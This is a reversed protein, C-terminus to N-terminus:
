LANGRCEHSQGALMKRAVWVQGLALGGDGAPAAQPTLLKLDFAALRETLLRLLLANQLCGGSATLTTIGESKATAALWNALAKALGTHFRAAGQAANSEAVLSALLPSLDLVGNQLTRIASLPPATIEGHQRIYGAALSELRMAAEAEYRNRACIGLLAAATDFVRGLSTTPPCHLNKDLMAILPAAQRDPFRSHLWNEIVAPVAGSGHLFAIGMRWPERAAADGGPLKLPALHGLRECEAAELRLLEGGWLGGDTGLGVGDLALGLVPTDIGYEACVAALHAHHHAIGLAPVGLRAAMKLALRTSPLDPHLDHAIVAPTIKLTALLHAVTEELFDMSAANDLSGIHQSLFAARGRALCIANKLYAGLALAPVGDDALPIALPTYGRARRIFFSTSAQERVESGQVSDDCRVVIDRDHLWYADAIGALRALAEDNDRVLPEGGPNASTMVLLTSQAKQTWAMGMPCGAAEYLLLWQMPTAPLMVGLRDLDPAIGPLAIAMDVRASLLVIPRAESQLLRAAPESVHVWAALSLCNAAMVAFPKADRNKRARLRAVTAANTADCVLHFGGLGKVAVIGGAQIRQWAGAAPDESLPKGDADLLRHAPGCTPCATAEAHFRRDAPQAYEAACPPCLPYPALSTSARCYPLHRTVTYRPGCQTCALLPYRYRRSAPDFLEALCEPCVGLDPGIQASLASTSPANAHISFDGCGTAPTSAHTIQEIRALRPAFAPLRALFEARQADEGELHIEVGAATNRVWGYLQLDTALRWVAPRFGVGQVLGTILIREASPM